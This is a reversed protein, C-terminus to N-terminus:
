LKDSLKSGLNTRGAELAGRDKGGQAEVEQVDQAEVLVEGGDVQRRGFGREM